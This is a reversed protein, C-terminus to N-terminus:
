ECIGGECSKSEGPYGGHNQGTRRAAIRQYRSIDRHGERIMAPSDAYLQSVLDRAEGFRGSRVYIDWLLAYTPLSDPCRRSLGILFEAAQEWNKARYARLAQRYEYPRGYSQLCRRVLWATPIAVLLLLFSGARALAPSSWLAAFRRVLPLEDVFAVPEDIADIARAEVFQRQRRIEALLGDMRDAHRRDKWFEITRESPAVTLRVTKAKCFFSVLLVGFAVFGGLVLGMALVLWAVNPEAEDDFAGTVWGIIGVAILPLLLALLARILRRGKFRTAESISVLEVPVLTESEELGDREWLVLVSGELSLRGYSPGDVQHIPLEIVDM